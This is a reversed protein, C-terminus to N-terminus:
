LIKENVRVDEITDGNRPLQNVVSQVRTFYDSISEKIKMELSEFEKSTNPTLDEKGM